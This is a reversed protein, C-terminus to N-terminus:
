DVFGQTKVFMLTGIVGIHWEPSKQIIRIQVPFQNVSGLPQIALM